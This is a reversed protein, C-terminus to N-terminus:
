QDEPTGQVDSHFNSHVNSTSGEFKFGRITERDEKMNYPSTDTQKEQQIARCVTKQRKLLLSVM